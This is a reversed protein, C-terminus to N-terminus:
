RRSASSFCCRTGRCKKSMCRTYKKNVKMSTTDTDPITSDAGTAHNPSEGYEIPELGFLHDGGAQEMKNKIDAALKGVLRYRKVSKESCRELIIFDVLKYFLILCAQVLGFLSTPLNFSFISPQNWFVMFDSFM